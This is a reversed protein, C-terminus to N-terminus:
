KNFLLDIFNYILNFNIILPFIFGFVAGIFHADHNINDANKKGMYYCYALYLPGFIIGPIPIIAMLFIQNLPAFFISCFLVASVAGSAGVSNYYGHDKHYILTTLSSVVIAILYMSIYWLNAHHLYGAGELQHFYYEVNTGFSYFVIMNVILHMWDAHVFGHTLIRYYERNHYVRYPNFMLKSFLATDNFAIMSILSTIIILIITM